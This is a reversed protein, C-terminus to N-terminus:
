KPMSSFISKTTFNIKLFDGFFITVQLPDSDLAVRTEEEDYVTVHALDQFEDV